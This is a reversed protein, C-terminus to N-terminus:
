RRRFRTEVRQLAAAIREARSGPTPMLGLQQSAEALNFVIRLRSILGDRYQHFDAGEVRWQRGTPARGPPDLPGTM